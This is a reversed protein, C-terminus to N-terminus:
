HTGKLEEFRHVAPWGRVTAERVNELLKFSERILFETSEGHSVAVKKYTRRGATNIQFTKTKREAKPDYDLDYQFLPKIITEEEEQNTNEDSDEGDSM